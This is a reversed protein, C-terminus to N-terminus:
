GMRSIIDLLIDRDYRATRTPKERASEGLCEVSLYGDYSIKGLEALVSPYDVMGKDLPLFNWSGDDGLFGNKIHTHFIKDKLANIVVTMDEGAFALNCFDVTLGVWDCDVLELFRESSALTDTLQRMHTELALRVGAEKAAPILLGMAKKLRRWHRKDADASSPGGPTLKIIKTEFTPALRIYTAATDIQDDLSDEDTFRNFLSLAAVEINAEQIKRAIKEAEKKALGLSFHPELCALEIASYGAEATASIAPLLDMAFLSQSFLSLKAAPRDETM